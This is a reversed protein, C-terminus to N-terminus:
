LDNKEGACAIVDNWAIPCMQKYGIEPGCSKINNINTIVPLLTFSICVCMFFFRKWFPNLNKINELTWIIRSNKNVRLLIFFTYIQLFLNVSM